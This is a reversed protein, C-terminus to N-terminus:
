REDFGGLEREAREWNEEPTGSQDSEYIEYARRRIAQERSSEEHPAGGVSTETQDHATDASTNAARDEAPTETVEVGAARSNKAPM